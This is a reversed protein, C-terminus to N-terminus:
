KLVGAYFCMEYRIPMEWLFLGYLVAFHRTLLVDYVHIIFVFTNM